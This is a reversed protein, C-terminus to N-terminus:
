LKNYIRCVKMQVSPNDTFILSCAPHIAKAQKQLWKADVNKAFQIQGRTRKKYGFYEWVASKFKKIKPRLHLNSIDKNYIVSM